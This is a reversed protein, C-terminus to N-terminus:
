GLVADEILGFVTAAEGEQLNPIELVGDDTDTFYFFLRGDEDDVGLRICFFRELAILYKGCSVLPYHKTHNISLDRSLMILDTQAESQSKYSQLLVGGMKNRGVLHHSYGEPEDTNRGSESIEFVSFQKLNVVWNNVAHKIWM